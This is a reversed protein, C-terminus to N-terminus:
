RRKKAKAVELEKQSTIFLEVIQDGAESNKLSLVNVKRAPM